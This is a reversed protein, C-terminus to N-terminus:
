FFYRYSSKHRTICNETWKSYRDSHERRFNRLARNPAGVPENDSNGDLATNSQTLHLKQANGQVKKEPNFANLFSFRTCFVSRANTM